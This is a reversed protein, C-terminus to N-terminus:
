LAKLPSSDNIGFIRKYVLEASILCMPMGIGPNTGAGVQYLNKITPHINNPRFIATQGLTHALGLATGSQANYRQAFDNVSFIKQYVLRSRLDPISLVQELTALTKQAYAELQEPTSELGAGIPVLIFLNEHDPPAVSPDTVSPACIYLSPDTPWVPPRNFIQDFNTKWDQCFILNHHVLQPLRGKVGLYLIFASPALTRKNWYADQKQKAKEQTPAALLRDFFAPDTNSIIQDAFVEGGDEFAVGIAKEGSSEQTRIISKAPKNLHFRVGHKKGIRELARILEYIGGQPYFVGQEFDIHNMLAYLAPSNYPSSGLFVMQYELLKQVNDSQFTRSVFQHMSSFVSLRSGQIATRLNFFDLISDYNKYLFDSKAVEYMKRTKALYSDLKQGAGPELSELTARDRTIDGHMDVRLNQDKFWVRYSPDLRVLDLHDQVREGLVSFFQEFIDPMLYWSPGMDFRFGQAEFLSARGGLQENKEYLDVQYGSKALLCATALGGIGGGIIIATKM